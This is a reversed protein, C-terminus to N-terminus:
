IFNYIITIGIISIASLITKIIVKKDWISLNKFLVFLIAIVSIGGVIIQFIPNSSIFSVVIFAIVFFTTIKDITPEIFINM